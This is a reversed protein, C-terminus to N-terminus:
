HYSGDAASLGINVVMVCLHCLRSIVQFRLLPAYILDLGAEEGQLPSM